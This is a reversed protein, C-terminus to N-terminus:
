FGSSPVSYRKKGGVYTALPRIRPLDDEPVTMVDASLILFDALKGPELSGKVDEEFTM